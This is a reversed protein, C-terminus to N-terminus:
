QSPAQNSEHSIITGTTTNAAGPIRLNASKRVRSQLRLDSRPPPEQARLGSPALTFRAFGFRQFRWIKLRSWYKRGVPMAVTQKKPRHGAPNMLAPYCNQEPAVSGTTAQNREPKMPPPM